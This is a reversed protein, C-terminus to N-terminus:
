IHLYGGGPAWHRLVLIGDNTLLDCVDDLIKRIKSVPFYCLVDLITILDFSHPSLNFDGLKRIDGSIFEISPYAKQAQSIATESIDIGIVKDSIKVIQNTFVGHGCGLDLAMKYKEKGLNLINRIIENYRKDNAGGIKWPDNHYRYKTEFDKIRIM